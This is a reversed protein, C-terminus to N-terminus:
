RIGGIYQRPALLKRDQPKRTPRPVPPANRSPTVGHLPLLNPQCRRILSQRLSRVTQWSTAKVQNRWAQWHHLWTGRKMRCEGTMSDGKMVVPMPLQDPASVQTRNMRSRRPVSLNQGWHGRYCFLLNVSQCDNHYDRKGSSTEGYSNGQFERHPLSETSGYICPFSRWTGTGRDWGTAREDSCSSVRDYSAEVPAVGNHQTDRQHAVEWESESM